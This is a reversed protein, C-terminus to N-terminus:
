PSDKPTPGFPHEPTWNLRERTYAVDCYADAEPTGIAYFLEYHLDPLELSRRVIEGADRPDILIPHNELLPTGYKDIRSDADVVWGLRIISVKIGKCRHFTEATMEQLAKTMSYYYSSDQPKPALDRSYFTGKPYGHVTAISSLLCVRDIGNEVAAHFLNATGRVNVDFPLTPQEYAKNHRSAMHGIVLADVGEVAKRVTDLDTVDGIITEHDSEFPQVDLLRLEHKGEFPLILRSGTYGAAGTILIKM